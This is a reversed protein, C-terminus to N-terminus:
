YIKTNVQDPSVLFLTPIAPSASGTRRTKNSSSLKIDFSVLTTISKDHMMRLDYPMFRTLSTFFLRQKIPVQQHRSHMIVYIPSNNLWAFTTRGALKLIYGIM